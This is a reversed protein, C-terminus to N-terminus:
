VSAFLECTEVATLDRLFALCNTMAICAHPVSICNGLIRTARKPCSPLWVSNTPAFLCLIEPIQLFRVAQPHRLMAGYLGGKSLVSQDMEHSFGYTTLICCFCTDPQRLRYELLDHKLRKPTRSQARENHPLMTPDMYMQIVEKTPIVGLCWPLVMDMLIQHSRLTPPAAVPWRVCRHPQLTPAAEGDVAILILRDRRQPMIQALDLSESWRIEYGLAKIFTKLRPWEEHQLLNAVMEMTVVTPRILAVLEWAAYMFMGDQRNSGCGSNVYSWPPCPPSMCLMDYKVDLMYHWWQPSLVDCLVFTPHLSDPDEHKFGDHSWIKELGHSKCYAEACNSDWDVAVDISVQHGFRGLTNAVHAWGSYGGAFFELCHTTLRDSDAKRAAHFPIVGAQPSCTSLCPIVGHTIAANVVIISTVHAGVLQWQSQSMTIRVQLPLDHACHKMDVRPQVFADIRDDLAEGDLIGHVHVKTVSMSIVSLNTVCVTAYDTCPCIAHQLTLPQLLRQLPEGLPPSQAM